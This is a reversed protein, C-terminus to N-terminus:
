RGGKTRALLGRLGRRAPVRPSPAGTPEAARRPALAATLAALDRTVGATQAVEVLLAGDDFARRIRREDDRVRAAVRMTLAREIEAVDVAARRVHRNLVLSLKHDGYGLQRFLTIVRAARRVAAVDQTVVLGVRDAMDLVALAYDSFERVGDVIVYEFHDTLAAILAPLREVLAPDIDDIRGTQTLAYFGADHRALRRKLAAGDITSAERALAALSTTPELDLAVFVDGLQLDLDLVVASHGARALTAATNVALTTAGAGGRCGFMVVVHGASGLARVAPPEARPADAPVPRPAGSPPWPRPPADLDRAHPMPGVRSPPPAPLPPGASARPGPPASARHTRPASAGWTAPLPPVDELAALARQASLEIDAAANAHLEAAELELDDLRRMQSVQTAARVFRNPLRSVVTDEHRAM